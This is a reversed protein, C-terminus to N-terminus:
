VTAIRVSLGRQHGFAYADTETAWDARLSPLYGEPAVVTIAELVQRVDDVTFYKGSTVYHEQGPFLRRGHRLSWQPSLRLWHRLHASIRERTTLCNTFYLLERWHVKSSACGTAVEAIEAALRHAAQGDIEGFWDRVWEVTKRHLEPSPQFNGSIAQGALSVLEDESACSTVMEGLGPITVGAEMWGPSLVPCKLIGAEVAVSSSLQIVVCSRLLWGDISGECLVHLNDSPPIRELYTEIREFPHPRLLINAQTYSHSLRTALHCFCSLNHHEREARTQIVQRDFGIHNVMTALEQAPTQYRPNTMSFNTTILILPQSPRDHWPNLQTAVQQWPRVYFDFRPSGTVRLTTTSFWGRKVGERALKPGWCFYRAVGLLLRHDQCLVQGYDVDLDTFVGGETDLVGYPVGASLLCSTFNANNRRLYNLLIFDPQLPPIEQHLLYMPVLYSELGRKALHAALLVLGALDRM